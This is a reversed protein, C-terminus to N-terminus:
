YYYYYYYDGPLFFSFLALLFYLDTMKLGGDKKEWSQMVTRAGNKVSFSEQKEEKKEKRKKKKKKKKKKESGSCSSLRAALSNKPKKGEALEKM